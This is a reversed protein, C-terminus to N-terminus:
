LGSGPDVWALGGGVDVGFGTEADGGDHRLGLEVTPVFTAGRMTGLGRWTGALGLRLRTVDGTAGALGAVKESSTRVAMADSSVSLEVGGDAPAELAVGRVGVAGMMLDTDTAMPDEDKLTLVLEGAGYGAVGWVSVRENVEYRGYPYLGTLTSSVEGEGEGRYGGEGRSHSLMLGVTGRERTIDAGLMASTVEGDLVLEGERGDFRSVAGRGWLAGFGGEPTGGTLAFSTGTLLERGTLARSGAAGADEGGMEGKLWDSVAELRMQAEREELAEMGEASAGGLAQGAVSVAVGPTRSAAFRGEVADLVQSAVTRGFRALWAGPIHGTNEITGTATADELWANGGTPNSLTLTFTEEGEDHSDDLVAVSVTKSTEGAAFTLTGSTATYDSGATAANTSSDDSTEYDVTVTSSSVRGLSVAFDVTADAAEYVRADAVSLGPPGPITKTVANALVEHDAACVAGTDSCSTFPGISVTLDEKGGPAVRVSWEDSRPANLRSVSPTLANGDRGIRVTSDRLTTYSYSVPEKNFVVRFAIEGTGDHEEPVDELRVRFATAASVTRPVTASVPASVPASLPRNDATCIAGAATCDTTQPLTVTVDGVGSAPTVTVTWVRNSGPTVRRVASVAGNTLDFASDRLTAYGLVVEEGFDLEFAFAAGGHADPLDRFAATLANSEATEPAATAEAGDHGFEAALGSAASVISAGNATLSDAVVALGGLDRSGDPVDLSFVLTASGSGSAYALAGPLGGISVDLWPMGGAVTVAESFTLRGEIREGPSWVGDGSADPMLAVASVYPAVAFGLGPALGQGDELAAGNLALSAPVVRAKRAGAEAATVTHSFILTDTGSGGTYAAERRTGDLLIGVTPTGNDLGGVTVPGSFAVEVEVTEGADWIGNDGPASAVRASVAQAPAAARRLSVAVRVGDPRGDRYRLYETTSEPLRGTLVAVGGATGAELDGIRYGNWYAVLGAAAPLTGGTALMFTGYQNVAFLSVERSTGGDAFSTDDMTGFSRGQVRGYGALWIRFTHSELTLMASLLEEEGAALAPNAPAPWVPDTAASTATAGGRAARVSLRHGVDAATPAYTSAEAGAIEEGGRLWRYTVTGAPPAAFTAELTNGVQPVGAVALTPAAHAVVAEVSAELPQGDATCVAGAAACDTRRALSVTVDGTGSPAVEIEWDRTSAADVGRVATVSGGSVALAADRLVAASVAVEESFALGLTFTTAGDHAAPAPGFTATLEDHNLITGRGVPDGLMAGGTAEGLLLAFIEGSDDVTDNDIPVSVTKVTEGVAFTLTGEVHTYDM